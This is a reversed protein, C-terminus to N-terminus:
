ANCPHEKVKINILSTQRGDGSNVCSLMATAELVANTAIKLGATSVSFKANIATM